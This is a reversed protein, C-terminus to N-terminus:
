QFAPRKKEALKMPYKRPTEQAGLVRHRRVDTFVPTCHAHRPNRACLNGVQTASSRRGGAGHSVLARSQFECLFSLDWLLPPWPPGPAGAEVCPVSVTGQHWTSAPCCPLRPGVVSEHGTEKVISQPCRRGSHVPEGRGPISVHVTSVSTM